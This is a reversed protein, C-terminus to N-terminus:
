STCPALTPLAKSSAAQLLKRKPQRKRWAQGYQFAAACSCPQERCGHVTSLPLPLGATLIEWGQEGTFGDRIADAKGRGVQGQKESLGLMASGLRRM